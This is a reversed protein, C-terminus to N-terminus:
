SPSAKERLDEWSIGQVAGSELEMGRREIESLWATETGTFADQIEPPLPDDFDEAIRMQGEWGGPQRPGPFRRFPVLKALLKGAKTLIFM